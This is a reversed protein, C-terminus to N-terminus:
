INKDIYYHTVSAQILNPVIKKISDNKKAVNKAIVLETGQVTRKSKKIHDLLKTKRM